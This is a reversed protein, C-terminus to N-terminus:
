ETLKVSDPNGDSTVHDTRSAPFEDATMM